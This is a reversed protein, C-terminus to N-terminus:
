CEDRKNRNMTSLTSMLSVQVLINANHIRNFCSIICPVPKRSWLKEFHTLLKGLTSVVHHKPCWHLLRWFSYLASINFMILSITSNPQTMSDDWTSEPTRLPKYLHKFFSMNTLIRPNGYPYKDTTKHHLKFYSSILKRRVLHM